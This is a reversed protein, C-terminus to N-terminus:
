KNNNNNTHTNQLLLCLCLLCLLCLLLFVFVNQVQVKEEELVLPTQKVHRELVAKQCIPCEGSSLVRQIDEEGTTQKRSYFADRNLLLIHTLLLLLSLSLVVFRSVLFLFVKALTTFLLVSSFPLRVSSIDVDLSTRTTRLRRGADTAFTCRHTKQTKTIFFFLFFKSSSCIQAGCLSWVEYLALSQTIMM